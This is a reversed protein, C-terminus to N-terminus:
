AVIGTNEDYDGIWVDIKGIQTYNTFKQPINLTFQQLKRWDLETLYEQNEMEAILKESDGWKVVVSIQHENDIVKVSKAVEPFDYKERLEQIHKGGHHNQHFLNSFYMAIMPLIDGNLDYKELIQKTLNTSDTYEKSVFFPMNFIIVNGKDQKGERNCRGAAQIISDLPAIQRYVIPFDVDVGAEIVQTSILFCPKKDKLLQRVKTLIQSRHAPCMRSSLHFCKEPFQASLIEYGERALKTTNVIILGQHLGTNQISSVVDKWEWSDAIYQYNVRNLQQFLRTTEDEPIIDVVNILDDDDLNHFAPQTASMLVITCGWDIVLTNLVNLIPRVLNPPISQSEDLLIVKNMLGQLKRCKTPHNAFLSEYFQVGSTVIIPKDWRETNLKYEKSEELKPEYGSHHELVTNEGFLQRYVEATQEIISKLPGVYVIGSMQNKQSHLYAFNASAITKGIGCPGTLRFIGRPLESSKQCYNAFTERAKSIVNQSNSLKLNSNFKYTFNGQNITNEFNRADLRDSDVLVSFLMRIAFERRLKPLNIDPLQEPIFDAIEQKAIELCEELNTALQKYESGRIRLRESLGSHHGAIIYAMAPPEKKAMQLALVAGHPSHVVRKGNNKLYEQWKQQYKGLDHWLGAYRAVEAFGQPVASASMEAVNQLHELLLQEKCNTTIRALYNM